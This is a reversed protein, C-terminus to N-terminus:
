TQELTVTVIVQDNAVVVADTIIGRAILNGGSPPSGAGAADFLGAEKFTKAGDATIVALWQAIDASPQSATGAVRAETAPVDLDTDGKAPATAGTGVGVYWTPATELDTVVEEGKQTYVGPM